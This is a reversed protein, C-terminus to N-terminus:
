YSTDVFPETFCNKCIHGVKEQAARDEQERVRKGCEGLFKGVTRATFPPERFGQMGLQGALSVM